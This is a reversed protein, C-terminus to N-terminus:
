TLRARLATAVQGPEDVVQRWTFRLVEYGAAVLGAQRRHDHEFAFRGRHYRYGDTEVILRKDRWLCDVVYTVEGSDSSRRGDPVQVTVNVEPGPLRHRRCLALFRRELESRAAGGEGTDEDDLHYGLVEAQRRAREVQPPSLCRRLDALTRTPSTVPIGHRLTTDRSTLTTSRHFRIGPRKERGSLGPVTIDVLGKSPSTLGWLAAASRHSLV